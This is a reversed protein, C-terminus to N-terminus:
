VESLSYKGLVCKIDTGDVIKCIVSLNFDVSDFEIDDYDDLLGDEVMRVALKYKRKEEDKMLPGWVKKDGTMFWKNYTKDYLGLVRYKYEKTIANRGRGTKVQMSVLTDREIVFEDSNVDVPAGDEKNNATPKSFWRGLLSNSRRGDSVAGREAKREVCEIAASTKVAYEFLDDTNDCKVLETFAILLNDSNKKLKELKKAAKTTSASDEAANNDKPASDDGTDVVVVESDNELVDREMEEVFRAIRNAVVEDDGVVETISDNSVDKEGQGIVGAFSFNKPCYAVYSQLLEARSSFAQCFPSKESGSVGVLELLPAMMKEAGLIIKQVYPWLQESVPEVDEGFELQCPGGELQGSDMTAHEFWDGFTELYGSTCEKSPLLRGKVMQAMRRNQKESHSAFDCCTFERQTQRTNGFGHEAAESSTLRLKDVDSRMALFVNSITESVFNRKSTIHVGAISTFWIMSCWLYLARHKAPVVKGNVAHLHMKLFVLTAALAGADGILGSAKGSALADELKQITEFSMLREVKKDSAFDKPRILEPSVGAQRLLDADVLLNGITPVCSGGVIQYRDNKVNHKNDVIGTHDADGNLFECITTRVDDTEVAVGDVAFSLFSTNPTTTVLSTAASVIDRTFDSSENNSQPRASIIETTSQGKRVGQFVMFAVKVESAKDVKIPCGIKQDLTDKIDKASMDDTSLKHKPYAGGMISRHSTSVELVEPVKTADIAFSFIMPVKETRRMSIAVSMAKKMDEVECDYVCPQREQANLAKMWRESPARGLNAAVARAAEPCISNIYRHFSMVRGKIKTNNRRTVWQEVTGELMSMLISTQFNPQTAYLHAAQKFFKPVSPIDGEAQISFATSPLNKSLRSMRKAYSYQAEAEEFLLDGDKTFRDMTAQNKNRFCKADDVDQETLIDRKRRGLCRRIKKGWPNIFSTAKNSGGKLARLDQCAKCTLGGDLADVIGVGTCSTSVIAPLSCFYGWKFTAGAPPLLYKNLLQVDHRKTGYMSNYAGM